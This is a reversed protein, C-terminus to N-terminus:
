HLVRSSAAHIGNHGIILSYIGNKKRQLREPLFCLGTPPTVANGSVLHDRGTKSESVRIMIVPVIIMMIIMIMMLKLSGNVTSRQDKHASEGHGLSSPAALPGRAPRSQAGSIITRLFKCPRPNKLGIHKRICILHGTNLCFKLTSPASDSSSACSIM